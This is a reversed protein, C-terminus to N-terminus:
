ETETFRFTPAVCDLAVIHSDSFPKECWTLSRARAVHFSECAIV